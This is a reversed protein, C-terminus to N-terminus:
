AARMSLPLPHQRMMYRSHTLVSGIHQLWHRHGVHQEARGRWGLSGCESRIWTPIDGEGVHSEEGRGRGLAVVRLLLDLMLGTPLPFDM